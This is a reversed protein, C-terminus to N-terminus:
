LGNAQLYRGLREMAEAYGVRPTYGLEVRARETAIEHHAGVLGLAERTLPPRTPSRRWRWVAEAAAAVLRAAPLPLSRPPRAGVRQALDTMYQRWTVPFDDCANYTRGVAAPRAAALILLDVLNEVYILGANGRGGAVLAPLGRRLVAAAERVWPTSVSGFVNAPRVVTVRLRRERALQQVVTEQSQKARGYAGQATGWATDEACVGAGLRDGYVVISSTVVIRANAAGTAALVNETGGVTVRQFWEEPGWDGVAAALHFITGAHQLAKAVVARDTIDGRVVEVPATWLGRTAEDPLVVARVYNGDAALRGVLWRGIFGTAGTVVVPQTLASDTV